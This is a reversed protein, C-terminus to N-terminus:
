HAHHEDLNEFRTCESRFLCKVTGTRGSRQKGIIIEALGKDASDDQNVEDRYIFIIVLELTGAPLVRELQHMPADNLCWLHEVFGALSPAPRHALFLM